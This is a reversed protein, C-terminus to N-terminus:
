KWPGKPQFKATAIEAPWVIQALGKQIQLYGNPTAVNTIGKFKVPGNITEFTDNDLAALIKDHDLGAKAVAQQLVQASMYASVSDLYDPAEKFKAKYDDFFTRATPWKTQDPSWHGVTVVGDLNEGFKQLFFPETPGIELFQFPATLGVERATNMYLISDGPYSLGIIADPAATKISLLMGTMDKIDPPYEQDFVVQMGAKQLAPMLFKKTELSLPLQMTVVALRKAGVEALLKPLDEGYKDPMVEVFKMYKVGLDRLLTSSATSGVLPFKRREVVPAVAIHISTAYPALLLDVKDVTILKEYLEAAKSPESQDDYSIFKILRKGQNGIELGGAKNVQEAWLDYAQQQVSTAVALFGTRAITYGVLIPQQAASVVPTITTTYITAVAALGVAAAAIIAPFIRTTRM